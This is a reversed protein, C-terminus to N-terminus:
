SIFFIKVKVKHAVIAYHSAHEVSSCIIDDHILNQLLPFCFFFTAQAELNVWSLILMDLTQGPLTLAALTINVEDGM